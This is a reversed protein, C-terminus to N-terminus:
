SKVRYIALHEIRKTAPNFTGGQERLKPNTEIWAILAEEIKFIDDESEQDLRFWISLPPDIVSEPILKLRIDGEHEERAELETKYTGNRTRLLKGELKSRFETAMM